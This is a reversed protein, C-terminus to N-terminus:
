GVTKITASWLYDFATGVLSYRKSLPPALLQRDSALRPKEFEERFKERVDPLKLFSDLSM